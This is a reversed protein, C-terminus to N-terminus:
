DHGAGPWRPPRKELFATVAERHDPESQRERISYCELTVVRRLDTETANMHLLRKAMWVAYRPNAPTLDPLKKEQAFVLYGKEADAVMESVQGAELGQQLIGFAQYPIDQPPERLTFGAYSKVELKEAAATTAFNAPAAKAAAQLQARLAQGRAIFLKRKERDKYDALVRERVESFIPNYGPLDENGLLIVFSDNTPLPDSFHREKSLRSIQEAYNALWPMDAPPLTPAFPAIAKAPHHQEALFAALRRDFEEPNDRIWRIDHM